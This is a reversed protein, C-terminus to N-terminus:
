KALHYNHLLSLWDKYMISLTLFDKENDIDLAAGGAKTIVTKSRANLVGSILAESRELTVPYSTIRALADLGLMSLTTSAQLCMYYFLSKAVFGKKLRLIEIIARVINIFEKHYRYDYVKLLIDIGGLLLFPRVMHLNNQRFNGDRTHFTAMKIGPRGKRPGFRRLVEESTIGLIYDYNEMDCLSVFRELEQVTLLPIDGPIILVHKERYKEIIEDTLEGTERYEPLTNLFGEKINECLNRKQEVITIDLDSLAESFVSKPGVLVIQEIEKSKLLVEVILRIISKGGIDLLAKNKRFVKKASRGDGATIVADVGM